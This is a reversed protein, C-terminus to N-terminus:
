RWESGYDDLERFFAGESPGEFLQDVLDERVLIVDGQEALRFIKADPPVTSSDLVLRRIRQVKGARFSWDVDSKKRDLPVGPGLLNAIFYPEKLVRGRQNKVQVPIFEFSAGSEKELFGRLAESVLLVGCANPISHPLVSGRTKDLEFVRDTPIIESLPVGEDALYGDKWTVMFKPLDIVWAYEPKEDNNSWVYYNAM